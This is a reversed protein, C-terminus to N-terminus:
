KVREYTVNLHGRSRAQGPPPWENHGQLAFRFVVRDDEIAARCTSWANCARDGSLSYTYRGIKYGDPAPDSVLVYEPSFANGSGSLMEDSAFTKVPVDSASKDSPGLFSKIERILTCEEGHCGTQTPCVFAVRCVTKTVYDTDGRVLIGRVTHDVADFVPSGSNGGFTDLNASFFGRASAVSRVAAGGAWKMPLGSPHGLVYVSEDAEIEKELNLKLPPRGSIPRDVRLVAFDKGDEEYIRGVIQTPAYVDVAAVSSNLVAQQGLKQYYFGFVIRDSKFGAGVCHAATAILDVGVVFGSCFAPAPQTAFSQDTCLQRKHGLSEAALDYHDGNKSFGSPHVFAAVSLVSKLIEDGMVESIEKRSDLGYITKQERQIHDILATDSVDDLDARPKEHLAKTKREALYQRLDDVSYRSLKEDVTPPMLRPETQVTQWAPAAAAVHPAAQTARERRDESSRCAGALMAPGLLLGACVATLREHAHTV